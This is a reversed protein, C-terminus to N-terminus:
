KSIFSYFPIVFNFDSTTNSISNLVSGKININTTTGTKSVLLDFQLTSITCTNGIDFTKSNLPTSTAYSDISYFYVNIKGDIVKILMKSEVDTAIDVMALGPGDGDADVKKIELLISTPTVNNEANVVNGNEDLLTASQPSFRTIEAQFNQYVLVNASTNQTHEGIRMNTKYVLYVMSALLSMVMASLVTYGLLEVISIGRKDSIRKM